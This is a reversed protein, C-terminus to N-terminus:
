FRKGIRLNDAEVISRHFKELALIGQEHQRDPHLHVHIRAKRLALARVLLALVAFVLVAGRDFL